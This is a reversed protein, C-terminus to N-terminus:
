DAGMPQTAVLFWTVLIGALLAGPLTDGTRRCAAVGIGAALAMLPVFLISIIVRLGETAFLLTGTAFLTAYQTALFVAFPGAM